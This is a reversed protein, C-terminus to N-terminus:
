KAEREKVRVQDAYYLGAEAMLIHQRIKEYASAQVEACHALKVRPSLAEGGDAARACLTCHRFSWCKRCAEKTVQGINLLRVAKEAQVGTDLSGICMVDSTESVRECPFFFGDANVFLRLVGPICPGAPVDVTRLQTPSDFQCEENAIRGASSKWIATVKEEPFRKFLTLVSLFQQYQSKWVYEESFVLESDDDYDVDVIAAALSHRNFDDSSLTIKNICDFDNAPDMVMSFQIDEYYEPALEKIRRVNKMLTDFSGTGDVFVRNKDHIEKPGDLSIMLRLNEKSLFRIIDDTLLTGNSTMSFSVKKGAFKKRTYAIVRKILPLELLPEGGYFGVTIEQSDVSHEYLFDIGRKATEWSMRKSSHSRQHPNAQESYICYKCRLNCGQTVQLIIHSLKRDLFHHLFPTYPHVVDQVVSETSLYGSQRLIQIEDLSSEAVSRTGRMCERLFDFAEPSVPIIESKNADYVYQSRPTKFLQVFPKDM